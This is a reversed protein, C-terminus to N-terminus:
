RRANRTGQRPPWTSQFASGNKRGRSSHGPSATARAASKCAATATAERAFAREVYKRCSQRRRVCAAAWHRFERDRADSPCRCENDDGRSTSRARLANPGIKAPPCFHPAARQEALAFRVLVVCAPNWSDLSWCAISHWKAKEALIQGLYNSLSIKQPIECRNAISKEALPTPRRRHNATDLFPQQDDLLNAGARKQRLSLM